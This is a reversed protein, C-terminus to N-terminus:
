GVLLRYVADTFEMYRVGEEFSTLKVPSGTRISDIFDAEVRWGRRTSQPVDLRQEAKDGISRYLEGAGVDVRLVGRAGLLRIENRGAGPEVGSFRYNLLATGDMRGLVHLADPLEVRQRAGSEWHTRYETFVAGSAATAEMKADPFWRQIVEHYIGLTLMNVGSYRPDQRWTLPAAPDLCAGTAHEICAERVEGLEGSELIARVTSDLDLTFPSPVVQAVRDPRARSAALMARAGDLDAAMRAETLVHKGAELAACTVEAHLYPWTGICVADVEPDAVVARWDPATRAIGFADAVKQSSAGSRNAVTVLRVGDIAAFGPLHRLRTNAGAGVFGIGITQLRSM